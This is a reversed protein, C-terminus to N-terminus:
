QRAPGNPHIPCAKLFHGLQGCYICVGSDMRRQREAANLRARGVQMPEEQSSASPPALPPPAQARPPARSAKSERERRRERQRNDLRISLSILDDLSDPEDHYTLEDKMSESLGHVLVGRLSHDNWQSEKGLIRFEISYDAVSRQGQRLSLLHKAANAEVNPHAFVKKFEGVFDDYAVVNAETQSLFAEAWELARGRLLGIIYSVKACDSAFISFQQAFVLSCQLLFGRSKSVEGAYPEPTPVPSEVPSRNSRPMVGPPDSPPSPSRVTSPSLHNAITEVLCGIQTVKSSLTQQSDMLEQLSQHHQGLLAGYHSLANKVSDSDASDM